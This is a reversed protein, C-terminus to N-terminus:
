PKELDALERRLRAKAVASELKRQESDPGRRLAIISLVPPVLLLLAIYTERGYANVMIFLAGIILAINAIVAAITLLRCPVSCLM